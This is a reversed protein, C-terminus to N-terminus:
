QGNGKLRVLVQRAQPAFSDTPFSKLFFNLEGIAEETRKQRLYLNVLELHARSLTADLLVADHLAREAERSKGLKEFASGLLFQAFGSNPRRRLGEEVLRLCDDYRGTLLFVNGLNFYAQTDSQNIKLVAEFEAEAAPFNSQNLYAAGLNNHAPYFDPALRLAAQFHRIADAAKGNAGCKVGEEFEKVVKKSFQKKYEALDVLYPDGGLVPAGQPAAQPKLELRISLINVPNIHPDVKVDEHYPEYREDNIMVHYLNGPLDHFIFKGENDTWAQNVVIGRTQLTIEIRDPPFSGRAITVQGGIAGNENQAVALACTLVLWPLMLTASLLPSLRYRGIM